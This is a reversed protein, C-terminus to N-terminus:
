WFFLFVILTDVLVQLNARRALIVGCSCTVDTLSPNIHLTQLMVTATCPRFLIDAMELCSETLHYRVICAYESPRVCNINCRPSNTDPQM